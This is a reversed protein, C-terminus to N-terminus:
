TQRAVRSGGFLVAHVLLPHLQHLGMRDRWGDPLPAAEDYAALVRDLYPLGFLALGRTSTRCSSAPTTSATPGRSGRM